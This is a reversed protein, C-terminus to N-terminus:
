DLRRVTNPHGPYLPCSRGPVSYPSRLMLMMTRHLASFLSAAALCGAKCGAFRVKYWGAAGNVSLLAASLLGGTTSEAIALTQGTEHLLAGIRELQPMMEAPPYAM